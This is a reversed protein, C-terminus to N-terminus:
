SKKLPRQTARSARFTSSRVVHPSSVLSGLEGFLTFPPAVFRILATPDSSTEHGGSSQTSHQAPAPVRGSARVPQTERKLQRAWKDRTGSQSLHQIGLGALPHEFHSRTRAVVAEV